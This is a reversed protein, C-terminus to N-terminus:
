PRGGFCTFSGYTDVNTGAANKTVFFYETTSNGTQPVSTAFATGTTAVHVTCSFGSAYAKPSLVKYQGTTSHVITWGTTTDATMTCSAASCVTGWATTYFSGAGIVGVTASDSTVGGKILPANQNETWGVVPVVFQVSVFDGSGFTFPAAQTVGSLSPPTGTWYLARVSTTSEYRALLPYHIGGDSAIGSSLLTNNTSSLKTTDITVPLNLTLNASTPAGSVSVLIDFYANSGQRKWICSYTTNTSWGGTITPCTTWDFNTQSMRVVQESQSPYREIRWAAQYNAENTWNCASAHNDAAQLTFTKAGSSTVPVHFVLGGGFQASNGDGVAQPDFSNTGDSLRFLCTGGSTFGNYFTGVLRFTYFGLPMNAVNLRHDNTGQATIGNATGASDVTWAACSSGTSLSVFNSLGSSSSEGYNCSSAGANSMGGFYTAQAVTGINRNPGLYGYDLTASAGAASAGKGKIRICTNTSASSVATATVAQWDSGNTLLPLNTCQKEVSNVVVCLQLTDAATFGGPGGNATQVFMTAEVNRSDSTSYCQEFTEDGDTFGVVIRKQGEYTPYSSPDDQVTVSPSGTTGWGTTGTSSEFSPNELWNTNGTEIRLRQNGTDTAQFYPVVLRVFQSWSAQEAGKILLPTNAGMLVLAFLVVFMGWFSKLFNKM